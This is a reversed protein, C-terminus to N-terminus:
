LLNFKNIYSTELHDLYKIEWLWKKKKFLHNNFENKINKFWNWLKQRYRSVEVKSSQYNVDATLFSVFKRLLKLM